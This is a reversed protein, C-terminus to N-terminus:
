QRMMRTTFVRGAVKVRLIYTGRTLPSADLEGRGTDDLTVGRSLKVAGTYDIAEVISPLSGGNSRLGTMPVKFTVRGTVTPNPHLSVESPTAIDAVAPGDQAFGQEPSTTNTVPTGVNLFGTGSFYTNNKNTAASTTSGYSGISQTVAGYLLSACSVNANLQMKGPNTTSFIVSTAAPLANANAIVLTGGGGISVSGGITTTGTYTNNGSLTVTSNRWKNVNGTGSINAALTYANTRNLNLTGNNVISSSNISGTATNFGIGLTAGAGITTVGTYTQDRNFSTAGVGLKTFGGSGTILISTQQTGHWNQTVVGGTGTNITRPGSLNTTTGATLSGNVTLDYGATNLTGLVTLREGFGHGNIVTNGTLTVIHTALISVNDNLTPVGVPTWIAPNNWNGTQNSVKNVGPPAAPGTVTLVGSYTVDFVANNKTTASSATSGYTGASQLTAGLTLTNCTANQALSVKGGSAVSLNGGLVTSVSPPGILGLELYAGNSVSVNV